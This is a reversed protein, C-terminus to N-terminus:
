YREVFCVQQEDNYLVIKKLGGKLTGCSYVPHNSDIKEKGEFDMVTIRKSERPQLTIEEGNDVVKEYLSDLEERWKNELELKVKFTQETTFSCNRLVISAEGSHKKVYNGDWDKETNYEYYLSEQERDLYIAGLDNRVSKIVGDSIDGIKSSITLLVVTVLLRKGVSNIYRWNTAKYLDFLIFPIALLIVINIYFIKSSGSEYPPFIRMIFPNPNNNSNCLLLMISALLVFCIKTNKSWKNKEDM